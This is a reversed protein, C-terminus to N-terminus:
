LAAVCEIYTTLCALDAGSLPGQPPDQTGCAGQQGLIKKLMWSDEVHASDILKDGQPCNTEQGPTLGTHKATADKLRVARGLSELDLGDSLQVMTGHCLKCGVPDRFIEESCSSYCPEQAYPDNSNDSFKGASGSASKGAVGGAGGAGDGLSQTSGGCALIGLMGLLPLLSRKM